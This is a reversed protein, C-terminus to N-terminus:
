LETDHTLIAAINHGAVKAFVSDALLTQVVKIDHVEQRIAVKLTRGTPFFCPFQYEM